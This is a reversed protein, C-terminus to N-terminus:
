SGQEFADDDLSVHNDSPYVFIRGDEYMASSWNDSRTPQPTTLGATWSEDSVDYIYFDDQTVGGIDGGSVCVRGDNMRYVCVPRVADVAAPIDTTAEYTDTSPDYLYMKHSYTEGGGLLVRGDALGCAFGKLFATPVDALKTWSDTAITYGYAYKGAFAPTLVRGGFTMIDYPGSDVVCMANQQLQVLTPLATLLTWADTVGNYEWLNTYSLGYFVGDKTTAPTDIAGNFPNINKHTVGSASWTNTDRDYWKTSLYGNHFPYLNGDSLEIMGTGPGGGGYMNTGHYPSDTTDSEKLGTTWSQPAGLATTGSFAQTDTRSRADLVSIVLTYSEGSVTPTGSVIGDAAGLVLGTPLSGSDVAWVAPSAPVSDTEIQLSFAQGATVAGLDTTTITITEPPPIPDGSVSTGTGTGDDDARSGAGAGGGNDHARYDYLDSPHRPEWCDGCVMLSDWRKRLDTQKFKFGCEDCLGNQSGFLLTNQGHTRQTM